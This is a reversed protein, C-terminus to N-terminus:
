GRYCSCGNPCYLFEDERIMAGGCRYCARYYRKEYLEQPLAPKAHKALEAPQSVKEEKVIKTKSVDEM